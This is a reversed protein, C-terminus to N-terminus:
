RKKQEQLLKLLDRFITILVFIYFFFLIKLHNYIIFLGNEEYFSFPIRFGRITFKEPRKRFYAKKFYRRAKSATYESM